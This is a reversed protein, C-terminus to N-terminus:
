QEPALNVGEISKSGANFAIMFTYTGREFEVTSEWRTVGPNDGPRSRISVVDVFQGSEAMTQERFAEFTAAPISQKMTASWDRSWAAYDGSNYAELMNETMSLAEAETVPSGPSEDPGSLSTCAGLATAIILLWWRHVVPRM